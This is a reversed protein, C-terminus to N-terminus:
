ALLVDDLRGVTWVNARSLGRGAWTTLFLLLLLLLFISYFLFCAVVVVYTQIWLVVAAIFSCDVLWGSCVCVIVSGVSFAGGGVGGGGVCARVCACCLVLGLVLM